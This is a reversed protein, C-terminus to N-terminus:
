EFLLSPRVLYVDRDVSRIELPELHPISASAPGLRADEIDREFLVEDALLVGQKDLHRLLVAFEEGPAGGRTILRGDATYVPLGRYVLTNDGGAVAEEPDFRTIDSVQNKAVAVTKGGARLFVLRTIGIGHQFVLTFVTGSGSGGTMRIEAGPIERVKRLVLDLGYGRGSSETAESLTTFGPSALLELTEPVTEGDKLIDAAKARHVVTARDIGRGDDAIQLTLANERKEATVLLSGFEEKGREIREEPHEIGHDVANRALHIMIESLHDLFTSEVEFDGGSIEVVVKKGQREALEEAFKKIRELEEALRRLRLKRVLDSCHASLNKLRKVIDNEEELRGSLLEIEELGKGLEEFKDTDVTLYNRRGYGQERPAGMASALEGETIVSPYDLETIQVRAIQDIDVIRYLQEREMAATLFIEIERHDPSVESLDPVTRVVNVELELNSILLFLRPYVMTESEEVETLVRYFREGRDRAEALLSLEFDSFRIRPLPATSKQFKERPEGGRSGTGSKLNEIENRLEDLGLSMEALVPRVEKGERLGQLLTEIRNSRATVSEFGLYAAESKLSHVARFGKDLADKTASSAAGGGETRSLDDLAEAFTDLFERSEQFFTENLKEDTM